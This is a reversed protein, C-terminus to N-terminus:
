LQTATFGTIDPPEAGRISISVKSANTSYNDSTDKAKILIDYDASSPFTLTYSNVHKLVYDILTSNGWTAGKRIEYGAVDPNSVLNWSLVTSCFQNPNIQYTFNAVDNPPIDKESLVVNNVVKKMSTFGGNYISSVGVSYTGVNLNYISHENGYARDKYIWTTGGDTSIHILFSTPYCNRPTDWKISIGSIVSGDPQIVFTPRAEVSSPSLIEPFGVYSGVNPVTADEDYVEPYYEMASLKRKMEKSRTIDLIRFKKTVKGSEGFSFIEREDPRFSFPTIQIVNTTVDDGTSPNVVDQAEIIDGTSQAHRSLIKYSKGHVFTVEKDLTVLKRTSNAIAEYSVIRGGVGWQPVDHQVDVVDGVQCAIADVDAELEITRILNESVRLLYKGHRYADTRSTCGYLNLQAINVIKDTSDFDTGYVTVIEQKYNNDKNYFTVEVANARNSLSLFDESFSDTYINSVTFLQVSEAPSDSIVGLRTGRFIVKGRGLAEIHALQEWLGDNADFYINVTLGKSDCFDAWKKFDNYIFRNKGIGRVEIEYAGTNINKVSRARHIMDYSAWAPNTASKQVYRNLSPDYVLVKSREQIWTINPRGGSLQSTALAKIGVLVKNPYAFDDYMKHTLQTWYLKTGYRSSTGSKGTCQVRVEYQGTPLNEVKVTRRIPHNVNGAITLEQKGTITVVWSNATECGVSFKCAISGNDYAEGLIMDATAGSVSGVVSYTSWAWYTNTGGSDGGYTETVYGGTKGTFTWTQSVGSMSHFYETYYRRITNNSHSISSGAIIPTWTSDGVKKYESILKVYAESLGGDDNAYFIGQPCEFTLELGQGADGETQHTHWVDDDSLEYSLSQDAYTDGFNPICVQDNTGLRTTLDIDNYYSLPTDNIEISEVSDVEGEGGCLLINLYQKDSNDTSTGVSTVHQSIIQGAIRVKGYTVPVPNGQQALNGQTNWGYTSSTEWESPKGALLPSILQGGLFMVAAAALYSGVGWGAMAFMGGAGGWFSAGAMLNGVGFSVVALVIAALFGLIDDEVKPCVILWSGDEVELDFDKVIKGDLSVSITEEDFLAFQKIYNRITNNPTYVLKKEEKSNLDFPNKVYVFNILRIM